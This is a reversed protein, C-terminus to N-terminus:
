EPPPQPPHAPVHRACEATARGGDVAAVSLLLTGGLHTTLPCDVTSQPQTLVALCAHPRASPGSGATGPTYMGARCASVAPVPITPPTPSGGRATAAAPTPPPAWKPWHHAGLGREAQKPPVRPSAPSWPWTHVPHRSEGIATHTAGCQASFPRKLQRTSSLRCVLKGDRLM